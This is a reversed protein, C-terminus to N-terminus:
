YVTVVDLAPRWIEILDALRMRANAPSTSPLARVDLLDPNIGDNALMPVAYRRWVEAAKGSNLCIRRITPHEGLLKPFNNVTPRLISSDLSGTRECSEITDWLAVGAATFAVLREEYSLAAEFGLCAAVM